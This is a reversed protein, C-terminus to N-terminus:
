GAPLAVGGPPDHAHESEDAKDDDQQRDAAAEGEGADLDHANFALIRGDAFEGIDAIDPKMIDINGGVVRIGRGNHENM